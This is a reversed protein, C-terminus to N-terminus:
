HAVPTAADHAHRRARCTALTEYLGGTATRGGPGAPSPARRARSPVTLAERRMLRQVVIVTGLAAALAGAVSGSGSSRTAGRVDASSMRGM